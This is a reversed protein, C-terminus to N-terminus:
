SQGVAPSLADRHEEDSGDPSSTKEKEDTTATYWEPINKWITLRESYCTVSLKYRSRKAQDNWSAYLWM